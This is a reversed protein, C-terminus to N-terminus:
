WLVASDELSSSYVSAGSARKGGATDSIARLGSSNAIVALGAVALGTRTALVVM